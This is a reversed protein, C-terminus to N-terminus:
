TRDADGVLVDGARLLELGKGTLVAVVRPVRGAEQADAPQDLEALTLAVADHHDARTAETFGDGVVIPGLWVEGHVVARDDIAEVTSVWLSIRERVLRM